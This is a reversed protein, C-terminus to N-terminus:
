VGNPEVKGEVVDDADKNSKIGGSVMEEALRSFHREDEVIVANHRKKITCWKKSTIRYHNGRWWRYPIKARAAFEHLESETDAIMYACEDHLWGRGLQVEFVRSLYIM